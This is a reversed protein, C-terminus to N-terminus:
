ESQHAMWVLRPPPGAPTGWLLLVAPFTQGGAVKQPARERPRTGSLTTPPHPALGPPRAESPGLLGEVVPTSAVPVLRKLCLVGRESATQAAVEVGAPDAAVKPPQQPEDFRRLPRPVLPPTTAALALTESPLPARIEESLPRKGVWPDRDPDPTSLWSGCRRFLRITSM